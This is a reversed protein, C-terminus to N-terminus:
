CERGKEQSVRWWRGKRTRRSSQLADLLSEGPPLYDIEFDM